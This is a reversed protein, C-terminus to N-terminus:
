WAAHLVNGLYESCFHFSDPFLPLHCARAGGDSSLPSSAVFPFAAAGLCADLTILTRFSEVALESTVVIGLFHHVVTMMILWEM